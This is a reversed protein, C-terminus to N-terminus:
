ALGKLSRVALFFVRTSQSSKKAAFFIKEGFTKSEKDADTKTCYDPDKQEYQTRLEPFNAEAETNITEMAGSVISLFLASMFLIASFMVFVGAMIKIMTKGFFICTILSLSYM